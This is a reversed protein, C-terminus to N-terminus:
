FGERLLELAKELVEDRGQQVGKITPKVSVDPVLGIRQLQRGDPHKVSQGTFGITIGGPVVMATIEGDAGASSSGVFRTGNAARFFLATHEAQSQTREDILMVTKGPYRSVGPPTAGITQNFAALSHPPITGVVTTEIVAAVANDTLALRPAIAWATDNPYGRMDFVIGSTEKLKEFMEDIQDYTLRDLDAYGIHGDLVTIVPGSRERHYLTAFDEKRRPLMLDRESGDQKRVRLHAIRDVPGNMFHQVAKLWLGERTSGSFYGTYRELRRRADEGDVSLIVDGISAGATESAGRDRFGTIVPLGEVISVSVPPFGPGILENFVLGAIYVHSDSLLKTMAAIALNYEAANEAGRFRPIFEGLTEEWGRDMLHKYPYFADIVSWIRFLALLRYEESPFTMDPYSRDRAMVGNAPLTRAPIRSPAFSRALEIAVRAPEDEGSASRSVIRDPQLDGTVLEAVRVQVVSGEGLPLTELRGSFCDRAEGEFVVVARGASQLAVVSPPAVSRKNLLFVAQGGANNPSPSIQQGDQTLFASRYQGSSFPSSGSYGYHVRCREGPAILPTDTLFREIPALTTALM